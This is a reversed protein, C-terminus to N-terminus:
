FLSMVNGYADKLEGLSGDLATKEADFTDEGAAEVKTFNGAVADRKEMLMKMPEAFPKQAMEPLGTMKTEVDAINTNWEEIVPKVTEVYKAKVDEFAGTVEDVAEEVMGEAPESTIGAETEEVEAKEEAQGCGLFALFAVLSIIAFITFLRKM